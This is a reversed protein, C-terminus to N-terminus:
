VAHACSMPAIPGPPHRHRHRRDVGRPTRIGRESLATAVARLSAPRSEPTYGDLRGSPPSPQNHGKESLGTPPVHLTETFWLAGDPGAAIRLAASAITAASV